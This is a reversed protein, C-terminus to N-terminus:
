SDDQTDGNGKGKSHTDLADPNVKLEASVVDLAQLQEQSYLGRLQESVSAM